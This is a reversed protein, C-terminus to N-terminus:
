CELALHMLLALSLALVLMGVLTLMSELAVTLVGSGDPGIKM